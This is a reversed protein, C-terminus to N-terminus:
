HCTAWSLGFKAEGKFPVKTNLFRGAWPICEELISGVQEEYGLPCEYNIEDHYYILQRAPIDLKKFQDYARCMAIEMVASEDMQMLDVLLVRTPVGYLRRGDLGELYGQREYEEKLKLRLPIIGPLVTFFVELIKKAVTPSCGVMAAIKAPGAGFISGFTLNKAHTRTVMESGLISNIRNRNITHVDTGDSKRGSIVATAFDVDGLNYRYLAEALTRLQCADADVGALVYGPTAIFVERMQRGFFVDDAAKPVNVVVSHRIRHSAAKGGIPTPIRGDSRCANFWGTMIDFRSSLKRYMAVQQGLGGRISGFSDETLKPSTREKNGYADQRTNYETPIWGQTLLFDTVHKPNRLNLPQSLIKRDIRYVNHGTGYYKEAHVTPSGDKKFQKQPWKPQQSQALPM